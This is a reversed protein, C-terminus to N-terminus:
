ADHTVYGSRELSALLESVDQAIASPAVGYREAVAHVLDAPERPTALLDWVDTGPGHVEVAVGDVTALALYGPGARFLVGDSRSFKM